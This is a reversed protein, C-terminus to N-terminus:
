GSVEVPGIAEVERGPLDVFVVRRRFQWEAQHGM